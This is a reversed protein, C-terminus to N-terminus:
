QSINQKKSVTEEQISHSKKAEQQTTPQVGLWSPEAQSM